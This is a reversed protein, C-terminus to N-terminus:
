KLNIKGEEQSAIVEKIVERATEGILAVTAMRLAVVTLIVVAIEIVTSHSEKEKKADAHVVSLIMVIMVSIMVAIMVASVEERAEENMREDAMKEVAHVDKAEIKAIMEVARVDKAEIEATMVTAIMVIADREAHVDNLARKTGKVNEALGANQRQQRVSRRRRRTNSSAPSVSMVTVSTNM